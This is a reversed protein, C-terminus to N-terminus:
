KGNNEEKNGILIVNGLSLYLDPHHTQWKESLEPFYMARTLAFESQTNWKFDSAPLFADQSVDDKISLTLGYGSNPSERISLASFPILRGGKLSIGRRRLQSTLRSSINETDKYPKGEKLVLGVNVYCHTLNFGALDAAELESRTVHRFGKLLGTEQLQVCGLPSSGSVDRTTIGFEPKTVPYCGSQFAHLCNKALPSSYNSDVFSNYERVVPDTLRKVTEMEGRANEIKVQRHKM